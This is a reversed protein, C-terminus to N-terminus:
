NTTQVAKCQELFGPVQLGGSLDTMIKLGSVVGPIERCSENSTTSDVKAEQSIGADEADADGETEFRRGSLECSIDNPTIPRKDWSENYASKKPSRNAMWFASISGTLRGSKLPVVM